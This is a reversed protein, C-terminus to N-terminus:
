DGYVVTRYRQYVGFVNFFEYDAHKITRIGARDAAEAASADGLAVLGLISMSESVGRKGTVDTEDYDIDLPAQFDSFAVGMPPIVPASLCGALPLVAGALLLCVLLRKM